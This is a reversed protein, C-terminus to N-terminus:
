QPSTEKARRARKPPAPALGLGLSTAQATFKPSSTTYFSKRKRMLVLERCLADLISFHRQLPASMNTVDINTMRGVAQVTALVDSSLFLSPDLTDCKADAIMKDLTRPDAM